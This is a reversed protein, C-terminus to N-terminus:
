LSLINLTKIFCYSWNNLSFKLPFFDSDEELINNLKRVRKKEQANTLNGIDFIYFLEHLFAHFSM